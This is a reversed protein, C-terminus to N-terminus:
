GDGSQRYEHVLHPQNIGSRLIVDLEDDTLRRGAAREADRLLSGHSSPFEKGPRLISDLLQERVAPSIREALPLAMSVGGSSGYLEIITTVVRNSIERSAGCAAAFQICTQIKGTHLPSLAIGFASKRLFDIENLTEEIISDIKTCIETCATM